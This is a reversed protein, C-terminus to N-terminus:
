FAGFKSANVKLWQDFEAETAFDPIASISGTDPTSAQGQLTALRDPTTDEASEAEAGSEKSDTDVPTVSGGFADANEKIWTDLDDDETVWKAAKEPIGHKKFKEAIEAKRSTTAYETVKAEAAQARRKWSALQKRVEKMATGDADTGDLDDTDLLDDDLNQQNPM